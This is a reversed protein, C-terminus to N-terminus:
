KVGASEIMAQVTPSGKALKQVSIGETKDNMLRLNNESSLLNKKVKELRAIAKDIEDIADGFQRKALDYNRTVASKFDTINQEFRILDLNTNQYRVLERKADLANIAANRLISIMTIFFQPRIVYMKPYKYSVDVIGDNYYDNDAELMSVLVAYECGKERRDKDLEKFFDENKHKTATTDMENKMEFMISILEVGDMEERFIFDGKSGTESVANDKEFYARPFAIMRIRNFETMCHQELTEGVMKTSMRTKLDKYYDLQTKLEREIEAASQRENMVAERVALNQRASAAQCEGKLSAIEERASLLQANLSREKEAFAAAEGQKVAEVAAKKDAEFKDSVIKMEHSVAKDFEANRVQSLLATYQTESLEIVAGCNPCKIENKEM